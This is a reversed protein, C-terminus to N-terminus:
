ADPFFVKGMMLLVQVIAASGYVWRPDVVATRAFMGTTLAWIPLAWLFATGWHMQLDVGALAALLVMLVLPGWAHILWFRRTDRDSESTFAIGTLEVSTPEGGIIKARSVRLDSSSSAIRAHASGSDSSVIRAHASGRHAIRSQRRALGDLAILLLISPLLRLFQSALFGAINRVREVPSLHAALSHSAYGFSPFHNEILWIVHPALTMAATAAALLVGRLRAM